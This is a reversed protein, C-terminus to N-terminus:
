GDGGEFPIKIQQCSEVQVFDGTKKDGANVRCWARQQGYPPQFRKQRSAAKYREWGIIEKDLIKGIENKEKQGPAQYSYGLEPIEACLMPICVAEYKCNDLWAQIIGVRPDEPVFERQIDPLTVQIEKPLTLSYEGGRYIEMAEAWAQLIYLRTEEEDELPHAEAQDSNIRIPLFRRNGTKDDPLFSIDNTTGIFVCQRPFDHPFRDYPIKYTDKQRSLFGKIAETTRTNVTALMESFEVIWHGQLKRFVNDDELNKIDDTFWEDQMALFRAFTSKGGGQKDEVICIMTDFKIGPTFVRAIAGLMFIKMAETTYESKEAGLYRPLLNEIRKKGDWNLAELAERVPHYADKHAVIDIARPLNKEHSMQYVQEIYWRINNLDNDSMEITFRQWWAGRIEVRGTMENYRFMAALKEDALIANMFGGISNDSNGPLVTVNNQGQEKLAKKHKKEAEDCM